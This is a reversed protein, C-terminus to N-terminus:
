YVCSGKSMEPSPCSFSKPAEWLALSHSSDYVGVSATKVRSKLCFPIELLLDLNLVRGVDNLRKVNRLVNEGHTVRNWTM